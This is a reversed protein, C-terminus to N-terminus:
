GIDVATLAVFIGLLILSTVYHSRRRFDTLVVLSGIVIVAIGLLLPLTKGFAFASLAVLILAAHLVAAGLGQLFLKYTETHSSTDM